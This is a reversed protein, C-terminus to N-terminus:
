PFFWALANSHINAAFQFYNSTFFFKNLKSIFLEESTLPESAPWIVHSGHADSHSFIL